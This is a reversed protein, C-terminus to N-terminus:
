SPPPTCPEPRTTRAACCICRGGDARAARRFVNELADFDIRLDPGLPAEVVPRDLNGVFQYFPPYVPCNVIVPDGPKSVLKLMEVIGLMVDPVIATREM